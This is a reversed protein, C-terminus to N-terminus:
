EDTSSILQTQALRTYIECRELLDDHTGTDVLSGKDLVIIRDAMQVTSLRHAIILVTRTERFHELTDNIM